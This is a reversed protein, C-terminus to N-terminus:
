RPAKVSPLRAYRGEIECTRCEGEVPRLWMKNGEARWHVKLGAPWDALRLKHPVVNVRVLFKQDASEVIILAVDGYAPIPADIPEGTESSPPLPRDSGGSQAVSAARAETRVGVIRGLRFGPEQPPQLTAASALACVVLVLM